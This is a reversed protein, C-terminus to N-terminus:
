SLNFSTCVRTSEREEARRAAGRLCLLLKLDRVCTRNFTFVSFQQKNLVYSCFFMLVYTQAYPM